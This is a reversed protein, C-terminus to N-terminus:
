SGKGHEVAEGAPALERRILRRVFAAMSEGHEAARVRL